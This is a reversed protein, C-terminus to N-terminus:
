LGLHELVRNVIRDCKSLHFSYVHDKMYGNLNERLMSKARNLRVKVNSEEIQLAASTERVSLDEIERLVFVVRYKEPLKAVAQQLTRGLEKNALENVATNMIAINDTQETTTHLRRNKRRQEYCQNLMIKTLWTGFSARREFGSLHEYANIYATQMADEAGAENELISMGIRYLRQNYKRMLLEFLRKEGALIRAILTEDPVPEPIVEMKDTM